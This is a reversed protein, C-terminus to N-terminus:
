PPIQGVFGLIRQGHHDEVAEVFEELGGPDVPGVVEFLHLAELLVLGVQTTGNSHDDSASGHYSFAGAEGEPYRHNTQLREGVRLDGM